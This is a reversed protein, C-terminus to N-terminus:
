FGIVFMIGNPEKKTIYRKFNPERLRFRIENKKIHEKKIPKIKYLKLWEKALKISWGQNKMFIISQIKSMQYKLYYM